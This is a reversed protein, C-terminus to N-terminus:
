VPNVVQSVERQWPSEFSQGWIDCNVNDYAGYVVLQSIGDLYEDKMILKSLM